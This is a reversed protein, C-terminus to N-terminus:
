ADAAPAAPPTAAVLPPPESDLPAPKPKKHPPAGPAPATAPHGGRHVVKIRGVPPPSAAHPAECHPASSPLKTQRAAPEAAPKQRGRKFTRRVLPADEDSEWRQGPFSDFCPESPAM